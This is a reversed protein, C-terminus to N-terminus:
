VDPLGKLIRGKNIRGTPRYNKLISPLRYRPMRNIRQLWRRKYEQIKDLVPTM